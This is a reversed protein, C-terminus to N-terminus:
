IRCIFSSNCYRETNPNNWKACHWGLDDVDDWSVSNEEKLLSLLKGNHVYIYWFCNWEYFYIASHCICHSPTLHPLSPLPSNGMLSYMNEILCSSYNQSRNCLVTIITLLLLLTNYMEFYIGLTESSFFIRSTISIDILM